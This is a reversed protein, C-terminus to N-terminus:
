DRPGYKPIKWSSTLAGSLLRVLLFDSGLSRQAVVTHHRLKMPISASRDDAQLVEQEYDEWAVAAALADALAQASASIRPV